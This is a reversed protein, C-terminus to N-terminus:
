PAQGEQHLRASRPRDPQSASSQNQVGRNGREARLESEARLWHDMAQGDSRGEREYIEYARAAIEDNSIMSEQGSDNRGNGTNPQEVRAGNGGSATPSMEEQSKFGTKKAM